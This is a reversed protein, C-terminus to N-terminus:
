RNMEDAMDLIYSNMMGDSSQTEYGDDNENETESDSIFDNVNDRNIMYRGIEETIEEEWLGTGLNISINNNTRRNNTRRYSEIEFRRNRDNANEFIVTNNEEENIQETCKARCMPCELKKKTYIKNKIYKITCNFHFKHGCEMIVLNKKDDFENLCIVCRDKKEDKVEEEKKVEEKINNNNIHSQEYLLQETIVNDHNSNVNNM